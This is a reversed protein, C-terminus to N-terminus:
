KKELSIILFFNSNNLRVYVQQWSLASEHPAVPSGEIIVFDHKQKSKEFSDLIKEIIDDEKGDVWASVAENNSVGYLQRLELDLDLESKMLELHHDPISPAIPRFCGVSKYRQVLLHALGLLVPSAKKTIETSTVYLSDVPVKPGPASSMTRILANKAAQQRQQSAVFKQLGRFRWM